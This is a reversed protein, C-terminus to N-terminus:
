PNVCHDAFSGVSELIPLNIAWFYSWHIRSVSFGSASSDLIRDLICDSANSFTLSAKTFDM